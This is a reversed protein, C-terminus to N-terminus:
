PQLIGQDQGGAKSAPRRMLRITEWTGIIGAARRTAGQTSGTAVPASNNAMKPVTGARRSRDVGASAVQPKRGSAWRAVVAAAASTTHNCRWGQPPAGWASATAAAAAGTGTAITDVADPCSTTNTTGPAPSVRVRAPPLKGSPPRTSRTSASDTTHISPWPWRWSCRRSASGGRGRDGIGHHGDGAWVACCCGGWHTCPGHNWVDMADWLSALRPAAVRRRQATWAPTSRHGPQQKAQQDGATGTVRHANGVRQARGLDHRGLNSLHQLLGRRSRTTRGPGQDLGAGSDIDRNDGGTRLGPRFDGRDWCRLGDRQYEVPHRQGREDIEDEAAFEPKGDLDLLGHAF